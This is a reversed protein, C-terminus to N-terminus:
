LQGAAHTRHDEEEKDKLARSLEEALENLHQPDLEHSMEEAVELWPRSSQEAKADPKFMM